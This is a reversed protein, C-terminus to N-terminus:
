ALQGGRSLLVPFRELERMRFRSESHPELVGQAVICTFPPGKAVAKAHQVISAVFKERAPMLDDAQTPAALPFVYLDRLYM